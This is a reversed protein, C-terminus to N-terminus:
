LSSLYHINVEKESVIGIASTYRCYNWFPLALINSLNANIIMIIPPMLQPETPRNLKSRTDNRKPPELWIIVLIM